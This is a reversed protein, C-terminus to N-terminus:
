VGMRALAEIVERMFREATPHEIAFNAELEKARKLVSGAEAGVANSDLLDHIDSDLEQVLTRTDADLETKQIEDRLKALLRRIQINSM